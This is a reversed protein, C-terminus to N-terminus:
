PSVMLNEFLLGLWRPDGPLREPTARVAAVALSPDVFHRV